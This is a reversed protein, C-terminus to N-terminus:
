IGHLLSLSRTTSILFEVGGSSRMVSSTDTRFLEDKGLSSRKVSSSTTHQLQIYIYIIGIQSQGFMSPVQTM